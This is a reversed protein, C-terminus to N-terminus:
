ENGEQKRIAIRIRTTVEDLSGGQIRSLTGTVEDQTISFKGQAGTSVRYHNEKDKEAFVMVDEGQRFTPMHSYTEGIGDVEGGPVYLTLDKGPTGGKVFQDVNLRVRTRIMTRTENWESVVESVKGVAIIEARVALDDIVASKIQSLVTAPIISLHIIGFIFPLFLVGRGLKMPGAEMFTLVTVSASPGEPQLTPLRTVIFEGCTSSGGSASLLPERLWICSGPVGPFNYFFPSSQKEKLVAMM